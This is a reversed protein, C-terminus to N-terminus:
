QSTKTKCPHSQIWQTALDQVVVAYRHNNRSECGESLVKHDATMLDGFNGSLTHNYWRTKQLFGKYDKTRLCIDCNRDKPFHNKFSHTGSVVKARPESPLEHSSSSADRHEPVSEDVLGHRFEQLWEPLDRSLNGRVEENDDNKNPKETRSTWAVPKGTSRWEYDWKKNISSAGYSDRNGASFIYSFNTFILNFLKDISWPCRLTRLESHKLWDEQWRQHTTTESWQDM